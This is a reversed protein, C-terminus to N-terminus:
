KEVVFRLVENESQGSIHLLYMGNPLNGNLTIQTNVNGPQAAITNIYVTQGLVDTVEISINEGTKSNWMANLTFAGNNPNPLLTTNNHITTLPNVGLGGPSVKRIRNSMQDVIFLNGSGDVKVSVCGDFTAATAPGGDGSSGTGGDGAVTTIIGAASVKRIRNNSADAIFLNGASNVSIGTPAVGAATAAASDGSYAFVGSGAVTTIIGAVSVKRIRHNYDDSIFLNGATDLAIREPYSLSASVAPGLDGSFGATDNGAITTITGGTAPSVKRIVNNFNDAIFLNGSRDVAVGTPFYLKANTAAFGNGSYGATGNGAVTTIIGSTDVKRICNNQHDAIYLNGAVDVTVGWPNSIKAAIAPGGDGSYGATDIGAITTIIGDTNVKRIVNNGADAIYLNGAADVAVDFPDGLKADTAPGGNGSYGYGTGAVTTIVQAKAGFSVLTFVSVLVGYFTPKM